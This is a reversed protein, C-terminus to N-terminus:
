ENDPCSGDRTSKLGLNWINNPKPPGLAPLMLFQGTREQDKEKCGKLLAGGGVLVDGLDGPVM